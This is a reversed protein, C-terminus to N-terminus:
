FSYAFILQAKWADQKEFSTDGAGAKNWADNDMFNAIYGLELNMELNECVRWASTLNFELLSDRTTLYPGDSHDTGYNWSSAAPLYKIGSASNTGGWYAVALTHRLDEVFSIDKLRLGVGWTGAYSVGKDLYGAGPGWGYNGDGMFSTLNGYPDISPMRESGNRPDGDDGSAYWGFIGPTVRDLRYEVLAKALWGQRGTQSRKTRVTTADTWRYTAYRGMSEVYGYNLDVEINWSDRVTVAFPLGAWFMGGNTGSRRPMPENNEAWGGFPALTFNPHGDALKGDRYAPFDDANRGRLGYLLWPTIEFGDFKLPLLIAFLDMNDLYNAGGLYSSGDFRGQYNDNFPRAWFVSLGANEAFQWSATVAAVDTDLVASGGAKNPMSVGQLGMRFMLDSQPATWDVYARRIKIVNNGDAGLAGGEDARGWQQDGIEFSVTGSLAESAVADLQLRLRQRAQFMDQDGAKRNGNNFNQKRLLSTEGLGFGMLWQGKARFDVAQVSTVAGLLMGAALLLTLFKKM